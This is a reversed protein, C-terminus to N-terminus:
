QCVLLVEATGGGTKNLRTSNLKNHASNQIECIDVNSFHRHAIERVSKISLVRPRAEVDSNYASYSLVLPVELQRVLAYLADFAAPARSKICFDSQHRQERYIGRSAVGGGGLNSMSVAPEDGVALTELVHYFRSHHDRTYPPDAYVASVRGRLAPLVDRFDGVHSEHQFKASPL